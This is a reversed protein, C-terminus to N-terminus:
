MAPPSLQLERVVENRLSRLPAAQYWQAKKQGSAHDIRTPGTTRDAFSRDQDLGNMNKQVIALPGRGVAARALLGGAAHRVRQQSVQLRMQLRCLVLRSARPRRVTPPQLEGPRRAYQRCVAFGPKRGQQAIIRGWGARCNYLGPPRRALRYGSGQGLQSIQDRVCARVCAREREEGIRRREWAGLPFLWQVAAVVRVAGRLVRRGTEM